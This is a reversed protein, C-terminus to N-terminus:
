KKYKFEWYKELADLLKQPIQESLSKKQKASMINVYRWSHYNLVFRAHSVPRCILQSILFYVHLINGITHPENLIRVCDIAFCNEKHFKKEGKGTTSFEVLNLIDSIKNKHWPKWFSLKIEDYKKLIYELEEWLIDYDEKQKHKWMYKVQKHMNQILDDFKCEKKEDDSEDDSM